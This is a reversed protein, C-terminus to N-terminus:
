KERTSLEKMQVALHAIMNADTKMELAESLGSVHEKVANQLQQVLKQVDERYQEMYAEGISRKHDELYRSISENLKGEVDDRLRNKGEGEFFQKGNKYYGLLWKVDPVIHALEEQVEPTTYPSSKLEDHVFSSLEGRIQDNWQNLQEATLKQMFVEIRLTTALVEQSLNVSLIRMLENWSTRMATKLDGQDRLTAPNFALNFFEAFRFGNRQKVYYLLEELEAGIMKEDEATDLESFRQIIRSEAARLNSLQAIREQESKKSNELWDEFIVAAREMEQRASRLAMEALEDLCFRAFDQEFREIGSTSLLTADKAIKGDLAMRSSVAYLRPHRIDHTLLNSEVHQLVGKLDEDSAALDAANVIFFMKDLELSDKVRGLQLLFEKDAQSFAHNYYTVFLIADANKIYNFAVGTHRANISDAGPTDVIIIGQNTIRNAHFLEIHDVYCSKREDAVYEAFQEYTVKIERGLQGNAASWGESAARLFSYHPKAPGVVHEPVLQGAIQLCAEINEAEYGLSKLSYQLDELIQEATKLVVKATGHEWGEQPALIRNIAATTPNPSVPLIREGMLANAFSSKGASFAGFLSITFTSNRLKSEKERMSREVSKMSPLPRILQAAQQLRDAMQVMRSQLEDGTSLDAREVHHDEDNSRINSHNATSIPTGANRKEESRPTTDSKQAVMEPPLTFLSDGSQLQGDQEEVAIYNALDPLEPREEMGNKHVIHALRARDEAEQTEMAQIHHYADMRTQLEALEDQLQPLIEQTSQTYNGVMEDIIEYCLRRYQSQIDAAVVKCYTMTYESTFGAGLQIRGELWEPTIKFAVQDIKATLQENSVSLRQAMKSLFDRAHRELHIRVNQELENCFAEQRTAQEKATQAARSFFGVKFGPKKSQLYSEALDRTVAPIIPAHEIIGSIEKRLQQRENDAAQVLSEYRSQLRDTQEKLEDVEIEGIMELWKEKAPAHESTVFEAHEDLLYAAAKLVNYTTLAQREAILHQLLWLLTNWENAPHSPQKLSMFLIGDPKILWNAFSERVTEKYQDFPLEDEKHKDIQNVILYFPKGWETLQRTFAFNTESLVHNYDMVYFVVDALHLASETAMRHADDTSDIGPTDLMVAHEGLWPLPYRIDVSEIDEGNKCHEELDEPSVTEVHRENIAESNASKRVISAEPEGHRISVVNASTPIPSSPLLRVGCLQNIMSSKGASFHGCLAIYMREQNVKELLQQLKYVRVEDKNREMHQQLETIMDQQKQRHISHVTKMSSMEGVVGHKEIISGQDLMWFFFGVRM